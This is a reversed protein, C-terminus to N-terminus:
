APDETQPGSLRPLQQPANLRGLMNILAPAKMSGHLDMIQKVIDIQKQLNALEIGMTEADSKRAQSATLEAQQIILATEAALKENELGRTKLREKIHALGEATLAGVTEGVSAGTKVDITLDLLRHLAARLKKRFAADDEPDHDPVLKDPNHVAILQKGAVVQAQVDLFTRIMLDTARRAQVSRLHTAVQAVGLISYVMPEGKFGGHSGISIVSQSRLADTEAKDLRFCHESTFVERNRSVAQNLTRTEVGFRAAVEFDLMVPIGRAEVVLPRGDNSIVPQSKLDDTM